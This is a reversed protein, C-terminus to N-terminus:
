PLARVQEWTMLSSPDTLAQERRHLIEGEFEEETLDDTPLDPGDLTDWIREALENRESEGLKMAATLLDSVAKSM